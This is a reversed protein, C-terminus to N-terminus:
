VKRFLFLPATYRGDANKENLRYYTNDAIDDFELYEIGFEFDDRIMPLLKYIDIHYQFFSLVGNEKLIVPTHKLFPIIPPLLTDFYIGDFPKLSELANQWTSPIITVGKKDQAWEEARQVVQPHAEIITHTTVGCRQIASDIIGMGFGVNLVDGQNHCIIEASREMIPREWEMMVEFGAPSLIAEETFDLDSNLYEQETYDWANPIEAVARRHRALAGHLDGPRAMTAGLNLMADPLDEAYLGAAMREAQAEARRGAAQLIEALAKHCSHLIPVASIAAKYDDVPKRLGAIPVLDMGPEFREIRHKELAGALAAHAAAVDPKLAIVARFGKVAEALKGRQANALALNYLAEENDPAEALIQEYAAAAEAVNGREMLAGAKKLRRALARYVKAM